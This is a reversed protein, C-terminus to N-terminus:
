RGKTQGRVQRRAAVGERYLMFVGSGVVIAAGTLEQLSPWEDFMYWGLGLAWLLGTYRFPSVFSVEGVRMVMVSFLYAAMIMVSSKVILLIQETDMAVWEVSVSAAGFCVTVALTTAFTVTLSPTSGSLRRTVLDRLVVFGVAILAYFGLQDWGVSKIQCLIDGDGCGTQPAEVVKRQAVQVM